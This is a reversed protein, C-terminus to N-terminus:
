LFIVPTLADRPMQSARSPRGGGGRDDRTARASRIERASHVKRRIEAGPLCAPLRNAPKGSDSDFFGKIREVLPVQLSFM